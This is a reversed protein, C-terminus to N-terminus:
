AIQELEEQVSDAQQGGLIGVPNLHSDDLAVLVNVESGDILIGHGLFENCVPQPWIVVVALFPSLYVKNNLLGALNERYLYLGSFIVYIM